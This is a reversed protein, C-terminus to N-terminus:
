VFFIKLLNVIIMGKDRPLTMVKAFQIDGFGLQEIMQKALDMSLYEQMKKYEEDTFTITVTDENQSSSWGGSINDLEDLSIEEDNAAMDAADKLMKAFEEPKYDKKM